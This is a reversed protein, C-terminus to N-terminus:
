VVIWYRAGDFGEAEFLASGESEVFFTLMPVTGRGAFIELSCADRIVEVEGFEGHVSTEWFGEYGPVHRFEKSTRRISLRDGSVRFTLDGIRLEGQTTSQHDFMMRWTRANPRENSPVWNTTIEPSPKQALRLGQDTSVLTLDVPLSQMGGSWTTPFPHVIGSAKLENGYRWDYLWSIAVRRTDPASDFTQTAYCDPGYQFPIRESSAHFRTGDFEGFQVWRGGGSLVWLSRGEPTNLPFLDPCETEIEPQESLLNWTQLDQSGYLRLLGGAVVMIWRSSQPHWFVKPDRYEKDDIGGAQFRLQPLIPNNAFPLFDIGDTSVALAQSQRGDAPDWLTYFLALTDDPTVVASGSWCHGLSSPLLAPRHETWHCLDTSSAHGWHLGDVVDPEYAQYFLHWRDRFFVLGNPDNMWGSAPTFHLKPRRFDQNV